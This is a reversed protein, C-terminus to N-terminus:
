QMKVIPSESDSTESGDEDFGLSAIMGKVLYNLYYFIDGGDFEIKVLTRRIDQHYQPCEEIFDILHEWTLGIYGDLPIAEDIDKGKEKLLVTLYNRMTQLRKEIDIRCNKSICQGKSGDMRSNALPNDQDNQEITM